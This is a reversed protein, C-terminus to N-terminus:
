RWFEIEFQIHFEKRNDTITYLSECTKLHIYTRKRKKYRMYYSSAENKKHKFALNLM